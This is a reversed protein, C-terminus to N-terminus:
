AITATLAAQAAEPLAAMGDRLAARWAAGRSQAEAHAARLDQPRDTALVEALAAVQALDKRAKGGGRDTRRVAVMIKHIAYRTPDPVTVLVGADHLAVAPVPDRLLFDMMRLAIGDARLAPLHRRTAHAGRNSALLQLELGPARWQSVIGPGALDPMAAFRPDVRSRLIEEIPQDIQDGVAVSVAPDQAIDVDATQGLAGPMLINLMAPYLNFAHTGVLVARLRFVGADALAALLRGVPAPPPSLGAGRLARVLAAREALEASRGAAADRVAAIRALLEPTEAGVYRQRRAPGPEQSYWYRRGKITKVTFAEVPGLGALADDRARALLDDYLAAAAVPLRTIRLSM